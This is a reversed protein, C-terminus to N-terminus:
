AFRRGGFVMGAFTRWRVALERWDISNNSVVIVRRKVHEYGAPWQPAPDLTHRLYGRFVLMAGKVSMATGFVFLIMGYLLRM